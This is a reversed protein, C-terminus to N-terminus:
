KIKEKTENLPALTLYKSRNIEEFYGNVKNFVLYLTNPRFTYLYKRIKFRQDDCIWCLVYSDEKIGKWRHQKKPYFMKISITGNFCYTQNKMDIDKVKKSM